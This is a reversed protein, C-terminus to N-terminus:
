FELGGERAGNALAKVRGIYRYGGRDFVVTKIGKDIAREALTKGVMQAQETKRKGKMEARLELDITSASVMTHGADDDIVQAYIESSSRFVNLRPRELTGKIHKRVRRHRRKRAYARSKKKSM